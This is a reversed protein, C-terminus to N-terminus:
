YVNNVKALVFYEFPGKYSFEELGDEGFFMWERKIMVKSKMIRHM